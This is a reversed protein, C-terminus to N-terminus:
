GRWFSSTSTSHHWGFFFNALLPTRVWASLALRIRLDLAKVVRGVKMSQYTLFSIYINFGLETFYTKYYIQYNLVCIVFKKWISSCMNAYFNFIRQPQEKLTFHDILRNNTPCIALQRANSFEMRKIVGSFGIYWFKVSNPWDKTCISFFISLGVITPCKPSLLKESMM